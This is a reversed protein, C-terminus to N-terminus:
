QTVELLQQLKALGLRKDYKIGRADLAARAEDISAVGEVPGGGRPATEVPDQLPAAIPVDPDFGQALLASLEDAGNAVAFGPGDRKTMKVPYM